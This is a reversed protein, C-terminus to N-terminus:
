NLQICWVNKIATSLICSVLVLEALTLLHVFLCMLDHQQKVNQLYYSTQWILLTKMSNILFGHHCRWLMCLFYNFLKKIDTWFIWMWKRGFTTRISRSFFKWIRTLWSRKVKIPAGEDPSSSQHRRLQVSSAAILRVAPEEEALLTKLVLLQQEM